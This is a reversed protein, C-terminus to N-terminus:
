ALGFPQLTSVMATGRLLFQMPGGMFSKKLTTVNIMPARHKAINRILTSGPGSLATGLRVLGRMAFYRNRTLQYATSLGFPPLASLM